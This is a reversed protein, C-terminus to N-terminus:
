DVFHIHLRQSQESMRALHKEKSSEETDADPLLQGGFESSKKWTMDLDPRPIDMSRGPPPCITHLADPM